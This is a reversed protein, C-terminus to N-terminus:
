TKSGMPQTGLIIIYISKASILFNFLRNKYFLTSLGPVVCEDHCLNLYNPNNKVWVYLTYLYLIYFWRHEISIM